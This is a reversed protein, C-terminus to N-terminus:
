RKVNGHFDQWAEYYDTLSESNVGWEEQSSPSADGAHQIALSSLPAVKQRTPSPARKPKTM